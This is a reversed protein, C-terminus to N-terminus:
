FWEKAGIRFVHRHLAQDLTSTAAGAPEKKEQDKKIKTHSDPFPLRRVHSREESSSTEKSPFFQHLDSRISASLDRFSSDPSLVNPTVLMKLHHEGKNYLPVLRIRHLWFQAHSKKHAHGPSSRFFRRELNKEPKRGPRKGTGNRNEQNTM